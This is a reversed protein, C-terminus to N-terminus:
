VWSGGGRRGPVRRGQSLLVVGVVGEVFFVLEFFLLLSTQPSFRGLRSGAGRLFESGCLGVGVVALDAVQVVVVVVAM